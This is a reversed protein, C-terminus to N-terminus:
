DDAISNMIEPASEVMRGVQQHRNPTATRTRERMYTEGNELISRFVFGTKKSSHSSHPLVGYIGDVSGFWVASAVAFGEVMEVAQVVDVLVAQQHRHPGVKLRVRQKRTLPSFESFSIESAVGTSCCWIETMDEDGRRDLVKRQLLAVHEKSDGKRFHLVGNLKAEVYCEALRFTTSPLDTKSASWSQIISM